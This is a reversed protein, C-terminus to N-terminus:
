NHKSLQNGCTAVWTRFLSQLPNMVYIICMCKSNGGSLGPIQKQVDNRGVFSFRWMWSVGSAILSSFFPSWLPDGNTDAELPEKEFTKRTM